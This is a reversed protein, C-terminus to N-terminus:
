ARLELLCVVMAQIIDGQGVPGTQEGTKGKLGIRDANLGLVASLRARIADRHPLLKPREALVVCDLNVIAYGAATVAEAAAQLMVASDKGRNAPDTDPFYEGIDGLSSAGLLADTIAHLLVDADSHGVAQKDFPIDIGGLRLPGGAALRHTDHGLGIRLNCSSMSM